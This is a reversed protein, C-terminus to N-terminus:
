ETGWEKILLKVKEELSAQCFADKDMLHEVTWSCEGDPALNHCWLGWDDAIDSYTADAYLFPSNWPLM